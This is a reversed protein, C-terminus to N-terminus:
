VYDKLTRALLRKETDAIELMHTTENEYMGCRLGIELATEGKDGTLM